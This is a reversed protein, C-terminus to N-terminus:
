VVEMALMGVVITGAVVCSLLLVIMATRADNSFEFSYAQASIM